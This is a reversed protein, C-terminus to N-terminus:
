AADATREVEPEVIEHPVLAKLASRHYDRQAALRAAQVPDNHAQAAAATLATYAARHFVLKKNLSRELWSPTLRYIPYLFVITTTIAFFATLGNISAM